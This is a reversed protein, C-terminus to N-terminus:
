IAPEHVCRVVLAIGMPVVGEPTEELHLVNGGDPCQKLLEARCPTVVGDVSDGMCILQVVIEPYKTNDLITTRITTTGVMYTTTATEPVPAADGAKAYSGFLGICALIFAILALSFAVPNKM